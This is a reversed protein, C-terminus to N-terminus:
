SRNGRMAPRPGDAAASDATGDAATGDAAASDTNPSHRGRPRDPRAPRSRGSLGYEVLGEPHRAFQIAALGFLIFLWKGDIPFLSPLPHRERTLWGVVAGGLVLPEFLAFAAAAILAGPVSRSGLAVVLVTWFLAAFPTFNAGYNVDRQSIALLGGGLGAIFASVAFAILRTRAASIGISQAGVESGRLAILSRGFTGSRLAVVAAAVVALVVAAFVLFTKEHSLDWPGLTPRPVATGRLLSAAGGGVWSLKIMVADFFYAFALTAIATWIGGLRRVPLSLIAGVAAAVLGGLLMAVLVSMDYRVALQYVTCAGIAAFAGQCLSIQGGTGTIVTVSLFIIAIVVAQTVQYVWLQDGRTLVVAGGGTVIAAGLLRMAMARRPDPRGVRAAPPPEVGSLPDGAGQARRIGPVLALVAFLVLFPVSPTLNDQVTRVWASDTGWRPLFTNLEAIVIGLGLGGALALPLSALSGVAAAAIAVVMLSFFDSSGLTNFRPAILVGAVGAFLSSLAWSFAAVRSAAIGNLETMRASEVVARMRLGIPSFRFVAGLGIVAVLAVGMDVLENRSFRYLGFVSYFVDAGGPVVGVPTVGSAPKFSAIIDFLNPLAVALGIAVVLKSVASASRLHKFILVELALGVLPALVVVSLLVAWVTPWGWILRAKFYMAASVYAQAGFALNFVGSTQYTLVFGLAVLAYVAGPPAGQLVARLFDSGVSSSDPAM